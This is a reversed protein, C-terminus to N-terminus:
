LELSDSHASLLEPVSSTQSPCRSQQMPPTVLQTNSSRIDHNLYLLATLQTNLLSYHVFYYILLILMNDPKMIQKKVTLLWFRLTFLPRIDTRFRINGSVWYMESREALTGAIVSIGWEIWHSMTAWETFCQILSWYTSQTSDWGPFRGGPRQITVKPLYRRRCAEM